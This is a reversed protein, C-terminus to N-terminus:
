VGANKPCSSISVGEVFNWYNALRLSGSTRRNLEAQGLTALRQTALAVWECLFHLSDENKGTLMEVNVKVLTQEAEPSGSVMKEHRKGSAAQEHQLKAEASMEQRAPM